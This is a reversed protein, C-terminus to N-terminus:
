DNTTEGVAWLPHNKWDDIFGMKELPIDPHRCVPGDLRGAWGSQPAIKKLLGYMLTLVFFIRHNPISPEHWAPHSKAAPIAPRVSLERNWLRGHHACINRIYNLTMLWSEFLKASLGYKEAIERQTHMDLMKFLTLMNGFTMVEVAMWLPLDLKDDEVQGAGYKQKFKKVFEEKSCSANFRLANILKGQESVSSTEPYFRRRLQIFPDDTELTILNTMRTRVSIEIREIGDMVLLRLQRDFVYRDWVVNFDPGPQLSDNECGDIRFPFWYASLRYYNVDQLRLIMLNRHGVMGRAILQDAQQEFSLPKKEYKVPFGEPCFFVWWM